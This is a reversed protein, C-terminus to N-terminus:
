RSRMSARRVRRRSTSTSATPASCRAKSPRRPAPGRRCATPPSTRRSAGRASTAPAGRPPRRPAACPRPTAARRRARAGGRARARRPLRGDTHMHCMQGIKGEFKEAALIKSLLGGLKKDLAALAPTLKANDSHRGLILADARVETLGRTDLSLKM